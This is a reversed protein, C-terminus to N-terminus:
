SRAARNLADAAKSIASAADRLHGAADREHASGREYDGAMDSIVDYAADLYTAVQEHTSM